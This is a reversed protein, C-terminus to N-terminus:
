FKFLITKSPKNGSSLVVSENWHKQLKGVREIQKFKLAVVKLDRKIYNFIIKM